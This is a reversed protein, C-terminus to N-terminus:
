YGRQIKKITAHVGPAWDTKGMSVELFIEGLLGRSLRDFSELAKNPDIPVAYGTSLAITPKPVLEGNQFPIEEGTNESM